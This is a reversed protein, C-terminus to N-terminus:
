KWSSGREEVPHREAKGVAHEFRGVHARGVPHGQERQERVPVRHDRDSCRPGPARPTTSRAHRTPAPARDTTGHSASRVSRGRCATHTAIASRSGPRSDLHDLRVRRKTALGDDGGGLRDRHVALQGRGGDTIGTPLSAEIQLRHLLDPVVQASEASTVRREDDSAVIRPCGVHDLQEGRVQPEGVLHRRRTMDVGEVDVGQDIRRDREAAHAAVPPANSPTPASRRM